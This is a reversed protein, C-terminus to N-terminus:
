AALAVKRIAPFEYYGGDEQRYVGVGLDVKDPHTDNDARAKLIFMPDVPARPVSAFPVNPAMTAARSLLRGHHKM